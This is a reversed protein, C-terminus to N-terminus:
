QPDGRFPGPLGVARFVSALLRPMVLDTILLVAAMLGLDALKGLAYGGLSTARGLLLSGPMIVWAMPWLVWHMYVPSHLRGSAHTWVVYGWNMLAVALGVGYTVAATQDLLSWLRQVDVNQEM